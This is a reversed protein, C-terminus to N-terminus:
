YAGFDTERVFDRTGDIHDVIWRRRGCGAKSSGEEGLIGDGPFENEIAERVMRENERDAITVPSTDAKTEASVGSARIRKANVGAATALRCAFELERADNM